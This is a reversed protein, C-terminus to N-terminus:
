QWRGIISWGGAICDRNERTMTETWVPGGGPHARRSASSPALAACAACTWQLPTPGRALSCSLRGPPARYPVTAIHPGHTHKPVAGCMGECVRVSRRGEPRSRKRYGRSEVGIAWRWRPGSYFCTPRSSSPKIDCHVVRARHMAETNLLSCHGFPIRVLAEHEHRKPSPMWSM